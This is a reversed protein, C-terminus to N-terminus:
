TMVHHKFQVLTPADHFNSCDYGLTDCYTKFLKEFKSMRSKKERKLEHISMEESFCSYSVGNHTRAHM